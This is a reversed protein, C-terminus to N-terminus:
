AKIDDADYLVADIDTVVQHAGDSMNIAAMFVENGKSPYFVDIATVKAGTDHLSYGIARSTLPAEGVTFAIMRGACVVSRVVHSINYM